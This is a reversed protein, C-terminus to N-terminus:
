VLVAEAAAVDPQVSKALDGGMVKTWFWRLPGEISVTVRV